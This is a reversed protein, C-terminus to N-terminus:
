LNTKVGKFLKLGKTMDAPTYCKTGMDAKNMNTDVKTAIYKKTNKLQLVWNWRLNYVGKLKSNPTTSKQFSITAKNDEYITVPWNVHVGAEEARWLLLNVDKVAESFAYIEAAASSLATVPQKNSRWVSPM